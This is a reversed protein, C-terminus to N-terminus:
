LGWDWWKNKITKALQVWAFADPCTSAASDAVDAHFRPHNPKSYDLKCDKSDQVFSRFLMQKQLTSVEVSDKAAAATMMLVFIFLIRGIRRVENFLKM